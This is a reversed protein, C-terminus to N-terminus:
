RQSRRFNIVLNTLFLTFITLLTLILLVQTDLIGQSFLTLNKQASIQDFFSAAEFKSGWILTVYGLFYYIILLGATLIGSILAHSTMSSTLCGISIFFAGLVFLYLHTNLLIENEFPIPLDTVMSFLKFLILPCCLLLIYLYLSGLFKSVVIQWTYVPATLLTEMTGLKEEDAFLRMTILPFLFLFFFWFNPSQFTLYALNFVLNSDQIAKMASSLSLGTMLTMFSFLVWALPSSLFGRFEKRILIRLTKM